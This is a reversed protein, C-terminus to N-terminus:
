FDTSYGEKPDDAVLTSESDKQQKNDNANGVSRPKKFAFLNNKFYIAMEEPTKGKTEPLFMYTFVCFFLLLVSFLLFTWDKTVYNLLPLFSLGIIVNATWNVLVALSVAASRPAQTFFEGVIMWPISGPGIAFFFIYCMMAVLNLYKIWDVRSKLVTAITMIISFVLMGCLGLLHLFRRGKVEMLPISIITTFVLILGVFPTAYTANQVGSATLIDVSYYFVANIGSFQQSLHLVIAIITPFLLTKDTFLQLINFKPLSAELRAENEMIEIEESVDTKNRLAMLAEEAADKRNQKILLFRPSEPCFPLTALQFIAFFGTFALLLPWLTESLFIEPLGFVQSLFITFVAGLQFLTGVSGRISVPSLETIYTPCLGSNLGANLGIIFRGIIIMEYSGCVKSLGMLLAAVIALINNYLLSKKRGLRDSVIGNSLGGFCGGVAFATVILSQILDITSEAMYEGSRNFNTENIFSKILAGPANIVGTNYGFQFASGCVASVLSFTLKKTIGLKKFDFGKSSKSNQDLIRLASLPETENSAESTQAESMM